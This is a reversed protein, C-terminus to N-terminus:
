DFFGKEKLMTTLRPDMKGGTRQVQRRM